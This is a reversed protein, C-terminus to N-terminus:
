DDPDLIAIDAPPQEDTDPLRIVIGDDAHMVQVDLGTRERLVCGLALGWPAHVRAGFPSHVVVRWDGLEDRFREVVITRDDPLHGTSARQEDLYRLTNDAAWTDFGIETLRERSREPGIQGLERVFEGMARGLEIPRGISDGHWFPMKGPQGPAPSVIVCDHTIDDI